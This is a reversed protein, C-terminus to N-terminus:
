LVEDFMECVAHFGEILQKYKVSIPIDRFQFNSNTIDPILLRSSYKKNVSFLMKYQVATM